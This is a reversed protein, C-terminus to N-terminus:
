ILLVLRVILLLGIGPLGFIGVILANLWNVGLTIGIFAGFYNLVILAIFGGLTNFFLKFILKLPTKFLKIFLVALLLLAVAIGILQINEM